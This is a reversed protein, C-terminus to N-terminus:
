RAGRELTVFRPTFGLRKFLDLSPDNDHLVETYYRLDGLQAMAAAMARTMVGQGRFEPALLISGVYARGDEGVKISFCGAPREDVRVLYWHNNPNAALGRHWAAQAEPTVERQDFFWRREANRLQRLFELDEARITDLRVDSM